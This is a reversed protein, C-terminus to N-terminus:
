LARLAATLTRKYTCSTRMECGVGDHVELYQRAESAVKELKAIKARMIVVDACDHPMDGGSYEAGCRTCDYWNAM